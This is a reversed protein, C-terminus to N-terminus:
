PAWLHRKNGSPRTQKSPVGGFHHNEKQSEKLAGVFPVLHTGLFLSVGM